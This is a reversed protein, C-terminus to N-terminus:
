EVNIKGTVVDNILVKRYQKLKSIKDNIATIIRDIEGTKADLYEVIQVQESQPPLIIPIYNADEVTFQPIATKDYYFISDSFGLTYYHVFNPYFHKNKRKCSITTQTSTCLEKVIKPHGISGRACIVLDGKNLIVNASNVFGFYKDDASASYVPIKGGEILDDKLITNGMNMKYLDKLRRVEWGKPISGIWDIDTDKMAASPNLGKTVVKNILSQKLQKYKTAKTTLLEIETDITATQTDLFEAIKIQTQLPPVLTTLNVLVRQSLSVRTVINMQNLFYNRHFDTRFFYKSFNIDLILKHQRVRIVFGSFVAKPISESVVSAFGIEEINESTRTFLIDNKKISYTKQEDITSNALLNVSKFNISDNYVNGYSVFPFGSGFYSADNSVGNQMWGIDKLRKVAWGSPVDGLWQLGSDKYKDYKKFQQM